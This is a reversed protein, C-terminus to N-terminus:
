ESGARFINVFYTYSKSKEYDRRSFIKIEEWFKEVLLLLKTVNYEEDEGEGFYNRSFHVHIGANPCNHGRYGKSVLMKFVKEYDEELSQHYGLTAPQTIIEFGNQLSSDHSCYAFLDGNDRRMSRVVEAANSDYEGGLEVELEVGFYKKARKNDLSFFQIPPAYRHYPTIYERTACTPCMLEGGTYAFESGCRNCVRYEPVVPVVYDDSIWEALNSQVYYEGNAEEPANEISVIYYLNGTTDSYAYGNIILPQGDYRGLCNRSIIRDRIHYYLEFFEEGDDLKKIKFEPMDISEPFSAYMGVGIEIDRTVTYFSRIGIPNNNENVCLVRWKTNRTSSVRSILYGDTSADLRYFYKIKDGIKLM